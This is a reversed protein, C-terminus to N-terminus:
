NMSTLGIDLACKVETGYIQIDQLVLTPRVKYMVLGYCLYFNTHFRNSNQYLIYLFEFSGENDAFFVMKQSYLRFNCSDFHLISSFWNTEYRM